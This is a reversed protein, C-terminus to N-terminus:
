KSIESEKIVWNRGAKTALLDGAHIMKRVVVPTIGLRDAAERTGLLPEWVEDTEQGAPSSLTTNDGVMVIWINAVKEAPLKGARILGRVKAPSIELRCAIEGTTLWGNVSHM